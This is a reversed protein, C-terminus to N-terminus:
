SGLTKAVCVASGPCLDGFEATTQLEEPAHGRDTCRYGRQAFFDPVTTTLLYLTCVGHALAYDEARNALEAGLRRGWYAERIALSRLLGVDSLLELGVVGALEPRSRLVWFHEVHAPALDEVSLGCEALLAKIDAEDGPRAPALVVARRAIRQLERM